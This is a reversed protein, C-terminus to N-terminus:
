LAADPLDAAAAALVRHYGGRGPPVRRVPAAALVGGNRGGSGLDQGASPQDLEGPGAGGLRSPDGRRVAGAGAVGSLDGWALAAVAREAADLVPAASRSQHDQAQRLIPLTEVLACLLGLVRYVPAPM